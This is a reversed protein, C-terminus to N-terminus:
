RVGRLAEDLAIDISSEIAGLQIHINGVIRKLRRSLESNDDKFVQMMSAQNSIQTQNRRLSSIAGYLMYIEYAADMGADAIYFGDEADVLVRFYLKWEGNGCQVHPITWGYITLNKHNRIDVMASDISIMHVDPEGRRRRLRNVRDRIEDRSTPHPPALATWIDNALFHRRPPSAGVPPSGPPGGGPPPPPPSSSRVLKVIM